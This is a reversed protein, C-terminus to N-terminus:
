YNKSIMRIFNILGHGIRLEFGKMGDGQLPIEMPRRLPKEEGLGRNRDLHSIELPVAPTDEKTTAPVRHIQGLFATREEGDGALHEVRLGVGALQKAIPIVRKAAGEMQAGIPGM